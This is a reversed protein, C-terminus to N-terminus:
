VFNELTISHLFRVVLKEGLVLMLLCFYSLLCAFSFLTIVVCSGGVEPKCEIFESTRQGRTSQTKHHLIWVVNFMLCYNFDSM